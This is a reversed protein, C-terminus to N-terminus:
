ITAHAVLNAIVNRCLVKKLRREKEKKVNIRNTQSDAYLQARAHSGVGRTPSVYIAVDCMELCFLHHPSYNILFTFCTTVYITVTVDCMGLCSSNVVQYLFHQMVGCMSGMIYLYYELNSGMTVLRVKEDSEGGCLCFIGHLCAILGSNYKCSLSTHFLLPLPSEHLLRAIYANRPLHLLHSSLSLSFISFLLTSIYQYGVKYGVSNCSHMYIIATSSM